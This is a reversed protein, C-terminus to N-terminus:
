GPLVAQMEMRPQTKALAAVPEQVSAELSTSTRQLRMHYLNRDVWQALLGFVQRVQVVLVVRGVLLSEELVRVAIAGLQPLSATSHRQRERALRAALQMLQAEKLVAV